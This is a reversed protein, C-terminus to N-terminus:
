YTPRESLVDRLVRGSGCAWGTRWGEYFGTLSALLVVGSSLLAAGISVIIIVPNETTSSTGAELIKWLAWGLLLLAAVLPAAAIQYAFVFPFTGAMAFCLPKALRRTNRGLFMLGAALWVLGACAVWLILFMLYVFTPPM